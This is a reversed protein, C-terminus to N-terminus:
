AQRTCHPPWPVHDQQGEVWGPGPPQLCAAFPHAVPTVCKCSAPSAKIQKARPRNLRGRSTHDQPHGAM